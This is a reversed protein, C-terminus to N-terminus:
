CSPTVRKLSMGVESEDKSCIYVHPNSSALEVTILVYTIAYFLGQNVDYIVPICESGCLWCNKRNDKNRAKSFMLSVPALGITQM